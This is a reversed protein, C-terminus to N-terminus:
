GGNFEGRQLLFGRWNEPNKTEPHLHTVVDKGNFVVLKTEPPIRDYQRCFAAGAKLRSGTPLKVGRQARCRVVNAYSMTVPGAFREYERVYQDIDMGERPNGTRAESTTPFMTIVLVESTERILDPVFGLGDAFLSCNKCKEPKALM